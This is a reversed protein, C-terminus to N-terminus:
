RNTNNNKKRKINRSAKNQAKHLRAKEKTTVVGDKKARREMKRINAQQKALQKTEKKTLEGSKVGKVIRTKQNKQRKDIKPINQGYVLGSFSFCVALFLIKVNM